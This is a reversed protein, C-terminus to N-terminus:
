APASGDEDKAALEFATAAWVDSPLRGTKGAAVLIMALDCDRQEVLAEAVLDPDTGPEALAALERLLGIAATRDGDGFLADLEATLAARYLEDPTMKAGNEHDSQRGMVLAEVAM